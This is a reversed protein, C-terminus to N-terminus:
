IRWSLELTSLLVDHRCTLPRWGGHIIVAEYTCVTAAKGSVTLCLPRAAPQEISLGGPRSPLVGTGVAVVESRRGRRTGGGLGWGVGLFRMVVVM